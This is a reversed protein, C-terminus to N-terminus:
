KLPWDLSSCRKTTRWFVGCTGWGGGNLFGVGGALRFTLNLLHSIFRSARVHVMAPGIRRHPKARSAATGHIARGVTLASLGLVGFETLVPIDEAM